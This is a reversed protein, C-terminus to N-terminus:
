HPYRPFFCHFINKFSFHTTVLPQPSVRPCRSNAPFFFSFFVEFIPNSLSTGVLLDLLWFRTCSYFLLLRPFCYAETWRLARHTNNTEQKTLNWGLVKWWEWQATMLLALTLWCGRCLCASWESNAQQVNTTKLCAPHSELFWSKWNRTMVLDYSVNAKEGCHGQFM